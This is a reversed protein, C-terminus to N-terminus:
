LNAEEAIVSDNANIQYIKDGIKLQGISSFSVKKISKLVVDAESGFIKLPNVECIKLYNRSLANFYARRIRRSLRKGCENESLFDDLDANLEPNIDSSTLTMLRLLLPKIRHLENSHAAIRLDRERKGLGFKFNDSNLLKNHKQNM